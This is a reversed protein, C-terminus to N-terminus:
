AKRQKRNLKDVGYHGILEHGALGEWGSTAIGPNFYAPHNEMLTPNYNLMNEGFSPHYMLGPPYTEGSSTSYGTNYYQGLSPNNIDYTIHTYPDFNMAQAIRSNIVKDKEGARKLMSMYNDSQVYEKNWKDAEINANLIETEINSQAKPLAGGHQLIGKQKLENMLSHEYTTSVNTMPLQGEKLLPNLNDIAHKTQDDISKVGITQSSRVPLHSYTGLDTSMGKNKLYQKLQGSERLKDWEEPSINYLENPLIGEVEGKPSIAYADNTYANFQKPDVYDGYTSQSPSMRHFDQIGKENLILFESTGSKSQGMIIDYGEDIYTKRMKADISSIDSGRVTKIKADDAFKFNYLQTNRGQKLAEEAVSTRGGRAGPFWGQYTYAYDPDSTGYFGPTNRKGASEAYDGMQKASLDDLNSIIPKDFKHPSGHFIGHPFIENIQSGTLDEGTKILDGVLGKHVTSNTLQGRGTMRLPNIGDDILSYHRFNKPLYIHPKLINSDKAKKILDKTGKVLPGAGFPLIGFGAYLAADTYKGQQAHDAANVFDPIPNVFSSADLGMRRADEATNEYGFYDGITNMMYEGDRRLGKADIFKGIKSKEFDSWWGDQEEDLTGGHERMLLHEEEPKWSGEGFRLAAEKDQGFHILEGRKKAEMMPIRWNEEDSMDLWSGDPNQFLTPFSVWNIGDITETRMLHTSESGDPNNRAGVRKPLRTDSKYKELPIETVVSNPEFQHYGSYPPLYRNNAILPIGTNSMDIIGNPGTQINLSDENRLPSDDRYGMMSIFEERTM